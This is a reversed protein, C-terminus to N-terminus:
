PATLVAQYRPVIEASQLTALSATTGFDPIQEDALYIKKQEGTVADRRLPLIAIRLDGQLIDPAYRRLGIEWANGNYFDDTLLKGNLLARGVDGVYHIRLMPDTSLDLDRPLTIRWVAATAFDADSPQAAVPQSAQGLRIDRAPGAPQVLDFSAISKVATPAPPVYNTFLGDPRGRWPTGPAPYVGVTLDNTEGSTLRIVDGDIVLGARTLFVRDRGQWEGKWLALSDTECLVVIQVNGQDTGELNLAIGRGPQVTRTSEQGAVAFQAPIGPTEAFFVTRTTGTDILCVPQATAWALQVGHGLALNFPWFFQSDAPITVPAAPFV